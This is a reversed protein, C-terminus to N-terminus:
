VVPVRRRAERKDLADFQRAVDPRGARRAAYGVSGPRRALRRCIEDLAEGSELLWMVERMLDALPRWGPGGLPDGWRTWKRWHNLCFGKAKHPGICGQVACRARRAERM